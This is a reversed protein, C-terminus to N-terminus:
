PLDWRKETKKRYLPPIRRSSRISKGEGLRGKDRGGGGGAWVPESMGSAAKFQPKFNGPLLRLWDRFKRKLKPGQASLGLLTAEASQFLGDSPLFAWAESILRLPAQM